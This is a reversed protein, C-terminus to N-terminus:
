TTAARVPARLQIPPASPPDAVITLVLDGTHQWWGEFDTGDACHVQLRCWDSGSANSFQLFSRSGAIIRGNIGGFWEGHPDFPSVVVSRTDARLGVHLAKLASEKASWLLSVLLPRHEASVHAILEQEEITFYDAIFADSRSEIAELDCGLAAEGLTVACVAAGARHSISITLARANDPLTLEPEGTSAARIQIDKLALDDGHFSPLAAVACKATWRGLRWDARRKAFRLSSLRVYESESLWDDATPVDVERQELWYVEM